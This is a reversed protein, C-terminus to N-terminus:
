QGGYPDSVLRTGWMGCAVSDLAVHLIVRPHRARHSLQVDLLSVRGRVRVRVLFAGAQGLGLRSGLGLGM